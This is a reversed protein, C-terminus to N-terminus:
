FYILLAVNADSITQRLESRKSIDVRIASDAGLSFRQRLGLEMYTDIQGSFYRMASIYPNIRWANRLDIYSGLSIGTGLAHGSRLYSSIRLDFDVFVYSLTAHHTQDWAAGIGGNLMTVLPRNEFVTSTTSMRQWGGSVKWSPSRFFEDRTSLSLINVPSIREIKTDLSSYHRLDLSFLETEAGRVFGEERDMLDHYAARLQLDQYTRGGLTGAAVAIRSSPHGQDPRVRPQRVGTQSEDMDIHSRTILLEQSLKSFQADARQIAARNYNLYALSTELLAAQREKPLKTFSSDTATSTGQSLNAVMAREDSSLLEIQHHLQTAGSPRYVIKTVLKPYTVIERVTDSPIAGWRFDRTFDFEPRAVQLLGLLHYSCNEDIFYYDFSHVDLEWLHMLVRDMEEASLNLQYEWIDRNEMDSYERVKAYYPLMSFTGPYGGFLGNIAFDLGNRENTNAAFNVAFALLRTSEDQDKADVRLLTHGYMSSPSNLYASAFILTLGSANVTKRWGHYRECPQPPLRAADFKLQSTLWSYRAVYACQPNQVDETSEIDSFFATLTADLEAQPNFKGDQALYYNASDVMGKYGPSLLNPVYHGL